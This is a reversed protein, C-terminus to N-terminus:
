RVCIICNVRSGLVISHVPIVREDNDGRGFAQYRDSNKACSVRRLQQVLQSGDSVPASAAVEIVRDFPSTDFSVM